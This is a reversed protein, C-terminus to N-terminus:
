VFYVGFCLFFFPVNYLSSLDIGGSFLFELRVDVLCCFPLIRSAFDLLVVFPSVCFDVTVTPSQSTGREVTSLVPLTLLM